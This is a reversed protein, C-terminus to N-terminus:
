GPTRRHTSSEKDPRHLWDQDSHTEVQIRPLSPPREDTKSTPRIVIEIDPDPEGGTRDRYFAQSLECFMAELDPLLEAQVWLDELDELDGNELAVLFQLGLQECREFDSGANM